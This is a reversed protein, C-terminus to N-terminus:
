VYLSGTDGVYLCTEGYKHSIKTLLAGSNGWDTDWFGAGHRNRTLWFYYAAHSLNPWIMDWAIAMFDTCQNTVEILCGPDFDDVSYNDEFPEGNDDTESWLATKLYMHVFEEIM